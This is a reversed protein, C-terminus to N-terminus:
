REGATHRAQRLRTSSIDLKPGHLFLLAPPETDPLLAAESEPIRHPALWHAAPTNLTPWTAGPRDIVAIPVLKAIDRWRQWQPLQPLIDAGMIWVFRVGSCRRTLYLVTDYTYRTGIEAEVGTVVIRPDRALARAAAIRAALPALGGTAKLPNGPTVLWWIRDLRLRKLALESAHVHGRHPPNFSGGFLGIRMGPSHPPLRAIPV